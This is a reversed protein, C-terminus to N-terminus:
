FDIKRTPSLNSVALDITFFEERTNQIQGLVDVHNVRGIHVSNVAVRIDGQRVARSRSWEAGVHERAATSPTRIVNTSEPTATTPRRTWTAPEQVATSTESQQNTRKGREWAFSFGSTILLAISAALVCVIGGGIPFAFGTKKNIGAMLVGGVALLVGVFAM